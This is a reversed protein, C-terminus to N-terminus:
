ALQKIQRLKAEYKKRLTREEDITRNMEQIFPLMDGVFQNREKYMNNLTENMGTLYEVQFELYKMKRDMNGGRNELFNYILTQLASYVSPYGADYTAIQLRLVDEHPLYTEVRKGTPKRKPLTPQPNM